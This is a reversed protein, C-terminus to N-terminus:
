GNTARIRRNIEAIAADTKQKWELYDVEDVKAILLDRFRVREARLTARLRIAEMAQPKKNFRM